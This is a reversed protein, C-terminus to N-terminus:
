LLAWGTGTGSKEWYRRKLWSSVDPRTPLFTNVMVRLGRASPFGLPFGLPFVRLLFVEAMGGTSMKSLCGCDDLILWTLTLGVAGLFGM